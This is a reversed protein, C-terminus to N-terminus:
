PLLNAEEKVQHEIPSGERPNVMLEKKPKKGRKKSVPSIRAKLAGPAKQAEPVIQYGAECPPMPGKPKGVRVM